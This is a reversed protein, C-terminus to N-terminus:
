YSEGSIKLSLDIHRQEEKGLEASVLVKRVSNLNFVSTEADIFKQFKELMLSDCAEGSLDAQLRWEIELDLSTAEGQVKSSGTLECGPSKEQIQQHHDISGASSVQLGAEQDNIMMLFSPGKIIRQVKDKATGARGIDKHLRELQDSTTGGLEADIKLSQIQYNVLDVKQSFEKGGPNKSESSGCAALTVLATGLTLRNWGNM